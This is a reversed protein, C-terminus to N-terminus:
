ELILDDLEGGTRFFCRVPGNVFIFQASQSVRILDRGVGGSVTEIREDYLKQIDIRGGKDVRKM